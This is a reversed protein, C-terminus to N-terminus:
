FFVANVHAGDLFEVVIGVVSEEDPTIFGVSLVTLVPWIYSYDSQHSVADWGYFYLSGSCAVCLEKSHFQDEWVLVELDVVDVGRWVLGDGWM